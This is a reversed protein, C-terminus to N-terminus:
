LSGTILILLGHSVVHLHIGTWNRGRHILWGATSQIEVWINFDIVADFMSKKRTHTFVCLNGGNEADCVSASETGLKNLREVAQSYCTIHRILVDHKYIINCLRWYNLKQIRKITIDVTWMSDKWQFTLGFDLFYFVTLLM